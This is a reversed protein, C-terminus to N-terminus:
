TLARTADRTGLERRHAALLGSVFVVLPLPVDLIVRYSLVRLRRDDGMWWMQQDTAPDPDIVPEDELHWGTARNGIRDDLDSGCRTRESTVPDPWDRQCEDVKSRHLAFTSLYRYVSTSRQECLDCAAKL